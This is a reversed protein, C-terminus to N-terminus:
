EGLLEKNTPVVTMRGFVEDEKHVALQSFEFRGDKWAEYKAAGLMERQRDESLSNFYDEGRGQPIPQDPNMRTMPLQVCRCNYHGDLIEDPEHFTGHMALCAPCVSEDERAMWVWGTVVNSNAVYNARAASRYAWLQTTRMTRMADTLGMGIQKNLYLAITKPNDGLAVGRMMAETIRDTLSGYSSKISAYLAGDKALFGVLQQITEIPVRVLSALLVKNGGTAARILKYSDEEGMQLAQLARANLQVELYNGFKASEYALEDMLAKYQRLKRVQSATPEEIAAIADALALIEPRLNEYLGRYAGILDEIATLDHKLLAARQRQALEIISPPTM